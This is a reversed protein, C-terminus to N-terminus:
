VWEIGLTELISSALDHPTEGRGEDDEEWPADALVKLLAYMAAADRVGASSVGELGHEEVAQNVTDVDRGVLRWTYRKSGMEDEYIRLFEAKTPLEGYNLSVHYGTRDGYKDPPTRPNKRPEDKILKRFKEALAMAEWNKLKRNEVEIEYAVGAAAKGGSRYAALIAQVAEDIPSGNKKRRTEHVFKELAPGVKLKEGLWDIPTGEFVPRQLFEALVGRDAFDTEYYDGSTAGRKPYATKIGGDDVTHLWARLTVDWSGEGERVEFSEVDKWNRLLWGLNKVETRKGGKVVYSGTNATRAGNVIKIGM